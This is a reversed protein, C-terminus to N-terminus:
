KCMLTDQYYDFDPNEIEQLGTVRNMPDSIFRDGDILVSNWAHGVIEDDLSVKGKHLRPSFENLENEPDGEATRYLGQLLFARELCSGEIGNDLLESMTLEPTEPELRSGYGPSEEYTIADNAYIRLENLLQEPTEADYTENEKFKQYPKKPLDDMVMTVDPFLLADGENLSVGNDYYVM